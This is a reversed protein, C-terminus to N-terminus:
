KILLTVLMVMTSLISVVLSMDQNLFRQDKMILPYNRAHATILAMDRATIVQQPNPLGHPNMFHYNRAGIESAKKNMM